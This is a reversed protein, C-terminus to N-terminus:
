APWAASTSCAGASARPATGSRRCAHMSTSSRTRPRSISARSVWAARSTACLTGTPVPKGDIAFPLDFIKLLKAIEDKANSRGKGVWTSAQEILGAGFVKERWEFRARNRKQKARQVADPDFSLPEFDIAEDSRQWEPQSGPAQKLQAAASIPLVMAYTLAQLVRRRRAEIAKVM